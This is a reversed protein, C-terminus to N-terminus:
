VSFAKIAMKKHHTTFLMTSLEDTAQSVITNKKETPALCYSATALPSLLGVIIRTKAHRSFKPMIYLVLCIFVGLPLVSNFCDM